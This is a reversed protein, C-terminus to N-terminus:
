FSSFPKMQQPVESSNVQYHTNDSTWLLTSYVFHGLTGLSTFNLLLIDCLLTSCLLMKSVATRSQLSNEEYQKLM